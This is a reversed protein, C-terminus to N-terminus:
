AAGRVDLKVHCLHGVELHVVRGFCVLDSSALLVADIWRIIEELPVEARSVLRRTPILYHDLLDYIYGQFIITRIPEDGLGTNLAVRQLFQHQPFQITIAHLPFSELRAEIFVEAAHLRNLLRPSTSRLGKFLVLKSGSASRRFM